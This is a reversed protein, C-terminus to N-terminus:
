NSTSGEVRSLAFTALSTSRTLDDAFRHLLSTQTQLQHSHRLQCRLDTAVPSAPPTQSFARTACLNLNIFASAVLQASLTDRHRLLRIAKPFKDFLLIPLFLDGVLFVQFSQVSSAQCFARILSLIKPALNLPSCHDVHPHHTDDACCVHGFSLCVSLDDPPQLNYHTYFNQKGLQRYNANQRAIKLIADTDTKM